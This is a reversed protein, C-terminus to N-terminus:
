APSRSCPRRGHDPRSPARPAGSERISDRPLPSGRRSARVSRLALQAAAAGCGRRANAHPMRALDDRHVLRRRRRQSRLFSEDIRTAISRTLLPSACATRSRRCYRRASPSRASRASSAGRCRGARSRRPAARRQRPLGVHEIEARVDIAPGLMQQLERTIPAIRTDASRACALPRADPQEVDPLLRDLAILDHLLGRSSSRALSSLKSPLTSPSSM